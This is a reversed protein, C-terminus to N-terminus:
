DFTNASLSGYHYIQLTVCQQIPVLLFDEMIQVFLCYRSIKRVGISNIIGITMFVHEPHRWGGREVHLRAPLHASWFVVIDVAPAPGTRRQRQIAISARRAAMSPCTPLVFVDTSLPATRTQIQNTNNAKLKAVALVYEVM